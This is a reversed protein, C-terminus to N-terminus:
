RRSITKELYCHELLEMLKDKGEGSIGLSKIDITEAKMSELFEGMDQKIEEPASVRSESTLFVAMRFVDNKHKRISKSDVPEGKSKRDTLDLWAKAKFPIIYEAKLVPIGDIIVQGHKLFDYYEDNLLIASLSSIEDDVPIPTIRATPDEVFSDIKRSFLEIMAPYEGNKPHTFRYFQPKGTSKNQHQYEAERIYDWFRKMFEITLAEVILVMDIDKTARFPMGESEMIIDCATGGIIIYENEFGQFHRKFSELGIVM